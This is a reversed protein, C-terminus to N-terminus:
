ERWEGRLQGLYGSPYTGGPLSGAYRRILDDAREVEIRGNGISRIVVEDGAVLGSEHLIRVPITIQHKSSLRSM